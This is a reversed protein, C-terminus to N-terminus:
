GRRTIIVSLVNSRLILCICGRLSAQNYEYFKGLAVWLVISITKKIPCKQESPSM